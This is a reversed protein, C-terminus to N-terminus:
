FGMGLKERFVWYDRVTMFGREARITAWRCLMLSPLHHGVQNEVEQIMELFEKKM